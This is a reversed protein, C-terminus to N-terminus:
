AIQSEEMTGRRATVPNGYVHLSELIVPVRIRDTESEIGLIGVKEIGVSHCDSYSRIASPSPNSGETGQPVCARWAHGISREPVWGTLAQSM